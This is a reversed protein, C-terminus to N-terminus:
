VTKTEPDAGTLHRAANTVLTGATTVLRQAYCDQWKKVGWYNMGATQVEGQNHPHSLGKQFAVTFTFFLQQEGGTLWCVLLPCSPQDHM